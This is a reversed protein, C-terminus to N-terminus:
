ISYTVTVHATDDPQLYVSNPTVTGCTIGGTASCTLTYTEGEPMNGTNEVVFVVSHPGSNFPAATAGASPMVANAWQQCSPCEQAKGVQVVTVITFAVILASRLM